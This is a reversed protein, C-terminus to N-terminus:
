PVPAATAPALPLAMEVTGIRLVMMEPPDVMTVVTPEEVM